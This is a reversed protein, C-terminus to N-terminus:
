RPEDGNRDRRTRDTRGAFFGALLGILTNLVAAVAAGAKTTDTEPHWIEVVAIAAGAGLIALCITGTIMLILLDTTSRQVRRPM